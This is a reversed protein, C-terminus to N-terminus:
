TTRRASSRRQAGSRGHPLAARRHGDSVRGPLSREARIPTHGIPPANRPHRRDGLRPPAPATFLEELARITSGLDLERLRALVPHPDERALRDLTRQM